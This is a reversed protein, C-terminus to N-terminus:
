GSFRQPPARRRVPLQREIPWLDLTELKFARALALQVRPTPLAGHEILRITEASIGIRRALDLRSWGANIRLAILQTHLARRGQRGQSKRPM